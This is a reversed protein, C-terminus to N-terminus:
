PLVKTEAMQGRQKQIRVGRRAVDPTVIELLVDGRSTENLLCKVEAYGIPHDDAPVRVTAEPPCQLLYAILESVKM